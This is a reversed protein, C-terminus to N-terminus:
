LYVEWTKLEHLAFKKGKSRGSKDLFIPRQECPVFKKARGRLVAFFVDLSIKDLNVPFRKYSEEASEHYLLAM